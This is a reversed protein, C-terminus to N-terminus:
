RQTRVPDDGRRGGRQEAFVNGVGQALQGANQDFSRVGREVTSPEFFQEASESLDLARGVLQTAREKLIHDGVDGSAGKPTLDRHVADELERALTLGLDIHERDLLVLLNSRDLALAVTWARDDGVLD